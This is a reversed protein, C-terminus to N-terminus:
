TTLFVVKSRQIFVLVFIPLGVLGPQRELQEKALMEQLQM